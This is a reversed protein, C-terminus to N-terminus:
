FDYFPGATFLSILTLGSHESSLPFVNKKKYIEILLVHKCKSFVQALVVM